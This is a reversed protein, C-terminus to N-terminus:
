IDYLEMIQSVYKDMNDLQQARILAGEQRKKYTEFDELMLVMEEVFEEKSECIKGCSDNVIGTLGGVGAALVPKGLALAEVAALGFGEWRSPMCMMKCNVLISYPNEVFGKLIITNELGLGKIKEELEERLEGDGLMVAKVFRRKSIEYIIDVFKEPNKQASLRGLFVVDYKEDYSIQKTKKRISEVSIPNGIIREKRRFFKGFIFEDFVSNSVGLMYKYRVCSIGYLITKACMSKLWPCNNHIHSIVPIKMTAASCVISATFDHAHIIDPHYKKIVRRLERISVKKIPEYEINEKKLKSEISGELSVYVLRMNKLQKKQLEDIISIVVNEAGSFSSTNLIHLIVM